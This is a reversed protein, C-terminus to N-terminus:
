QDSGKTRQPQRHAGARRRRGARGRRRGPGGLRHVDVAAAGRDLRASGPRGPALGAAGRCSALPSCSCSWPSCGSPASWRRPRRAPRLICTPTGSEVSRVGGGCCPWVWWTSAAASPRCWPGSPRCSGGSAADQLLLGSGTVQRLSADPTRTPPGACRIPWRRAPAPGRPPCGPRRRAPRRPGPARAPPTPQPPARGRAESVLTRCRGSRGHRRRNTPRARSRPEPRLLHPDRQAPHSPSGSCRVRSHGKGRLRHRPRLVAGDGRHPVTYATM